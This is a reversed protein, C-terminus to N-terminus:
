PTKSSTRIYQVARELLDLTPESLQLYWDLGKSAVLAQRFLNGGFTILGPRHDITVPLNLTVGPAVTYPTTQPKNKKEKRLIADKKLSAINFLKYVIDNGDVGEPAIVTWSNGLNTTSAFFDDFVVEIGRFESAVDWQPSPTDTYVTYKSDGNSQVIYQTKPRAGVLQMLENANEAHGLPLPVDEPIDFVIDGAQGAEENRLFAQVVQRVRERQEGEEARERRERRQTERERLGELKELIQPDVPAFSPAFVAEGQTEFPASYLDFLLGDLLSMKVLAGFGQPPNSARM